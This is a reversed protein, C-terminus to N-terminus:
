GVALTSRSYHEALEDWAMSENWHLAEADVRDSNVRVLPESFDTQQAFELATTLGLRPGIEKAFRESFERQTEVYWSPNVKAFGAQNPLQAVFAEYASALLSVHINDRVYDPTRVVATEAARWCRILYATFRAEEWPGFPNPIVFKGLSLRAQQCFYSITAATLSKSLGYPSFSPLGDCGSGEGSEFVSGSIVVRRCEVNDLSKIVDCLQNTNQALAALYDFDPSKYNTAEAAHHCLVDPRTRQIAKLFSTDGFRCDFVPAVLRQVQAVRRGRISDGYDAPQSRTFTATVEHGSEALITAFWFGTFSSAGTLLVRMKM